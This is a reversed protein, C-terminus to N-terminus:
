YFNIINIRLQPQLSDILNDIPVYYLCFRENITILNDQLSTELLMIYMQRNM